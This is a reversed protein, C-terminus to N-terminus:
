GVFKRRPDGLTVVLAPECRDPDCRLHQGEIATMAHVPERKVCDRVAQPRVSDYCGSRSDDTKADGGGISPAVSKRAPSEKKVFSRHGSQRSSPRWSTARKGAKRPNLTSRKPSARRDVSSPSALFM